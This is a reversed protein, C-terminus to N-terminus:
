ISGNTLNIGQGTTVTINGANGSNSTSSLIKSQNFTTLGASTITVNGARDSGKTDSEIRSNTLTLNGASNISVDGSRGTGSVPISIKGTFPTDITVQKGTLIVTDAIALDEQGNVAVAGAQASSSATLMQLGSVQNKANLTVNGGANATGQPAVSFTYLGSGGGAINGNQAILAIAGGNGSNGTTSYSFSSLDSNNTLNGNQTTLAIAGGNGSNGTESLSFSSLYSYNNNTLPEWSSSM